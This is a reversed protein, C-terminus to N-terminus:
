LRSCIAALLARAKDYDASQLDMGVFVDHRVAILQTGHLLSANDWPGKLTTDTSFGVKTVAGPASSRSAGTAMKMFGGLMRGMDGTPKMTDMPTHAPTGIMGSLTSMGHELMHYNKAGGSWVFAVAYTREGQPTAVHYTCATGPADSTPAGALPGIAAEVDARPVLDCAAAPHPRPRPALAVAKAGDYALPHGIRPVMLRALALADEQQGSAGSVDIGIAADGKTVTLTGGPIWTAQDWPGAPGQQMVKNTLSDLGPAGKGLVGGVLKPVGTLVRGMMRGASWSPRVVLERGDTGRYLCTEGHVDAVTGDDNARYPPSVLTGVYPQAEGATLLTCPDHDAAGLTATQGSSSADGNAPGNGGCSALTVVALAISAAAILARNRPHSM